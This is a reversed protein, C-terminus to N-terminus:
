RQPQARLELTTKISRPKGDILVPNYTCSEVYRKFAAMLTKSGNGRVSVDSVAGDDRITFDAALADRSSQARPPQKACFKLEPRVLVSSSISPPPATWFLRSMFATM